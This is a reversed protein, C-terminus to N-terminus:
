GPYNNEVVSCFLEPWNESYIDICGIKYQDSDKGTTWYLKRWIPKTKPDTKISFHISSRYRDYLHIKEQDTM